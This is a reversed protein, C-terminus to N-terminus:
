TNTHINVQTAVALHAGAVVGENLGLVVPLQNIGLLIPYTRVSVARWTM